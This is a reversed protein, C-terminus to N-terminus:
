LRRIGDFAARGPGAVVFPVRLLRDDLSMSHGMLGRVGFNEGHDSCIVILTDELVGATTLADLVRALWSDIYRLAAGYLTRMREIAEPPVEREGLCALLISDFTLYRFAEDAARARRVRP